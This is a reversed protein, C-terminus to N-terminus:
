SNAAATKETLRMSLEVLVGNKGPTRDVGLETLYLDGFVPMAHQEIQDLFLDIAEFLPNDKAEDNTDALITVLLSLYEGAPKVHLRSSAIRESTRTAVFLSDEYRRADLRDTAIRYTAQIETALRRQKCYALHEVLADLSSEDRLDLPTPSEILYEEELTDRRWRLGGASQAISDWEDLRALRAITGHLVTQEHHLKSIREALRMQREELFTRLSRADDEALVSAIEKLSTDAGQLARILLFDVLQSYGYLAYGAETHAIPKFLGIRDYHRLTEKTTQCLKAFEGSHLFEKM